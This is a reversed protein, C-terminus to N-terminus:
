KTRKDACIKKAAKLCTTSIDIFSCIEEASLRYESNAFLGPFLEKFRCYRRKKDKMQLIELHKNRRDAKMSLITTTLDHAVTHEAYIGDMDLNTVAVLESDEMMEIYYRGNPLKKRFKKYMVIISDAEWIYCIIQEASENYYYLKARGKKLYYAKMAKQGPKLLFEGKYAYMPELVGPEMLAEALGPIPKGYLKTLYDIVCQKWTRILEETLQFPLKKM